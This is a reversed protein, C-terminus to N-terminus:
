TQKLLELFFIEGKSWEDIIEYKTKKALEKFYKIDQKQWKVGYGTENEEKPLKIKLHVMFAKYDGFRKPITVEWLLLRGNNKLVRHVEELVRLHKEKPIYMMSFFATCLDFSNPLFKLDTADMVVKLAENVTEELERENTDIAIVQKGNLRGIIGEGGGGIDLIFGDTEIPLLEIIQPDSSYTFKNVFEMIRMSLEEDGKSKAIQFAKHIEEGAKKLDDAKIFSGADELIKEIKKEERSLSIAELFCSNAKM